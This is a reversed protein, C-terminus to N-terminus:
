ASEATTSLYSFVLALVSFILAASKQWSITEDFIAIGLVVGLIIALAEWIFFMVSFDIIRFALAVPFAASAYLLVGWLLYTPNDANFKKLYVDAITSVIVALAVYFIPLLM